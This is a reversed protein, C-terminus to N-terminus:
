AASEKKAPNKAPTVTKKALTARDTIIVADVPCVQRCADCATCLENDITHVQYPTNPIANVPCDQACKTCGICDDTIDYAILAQCKGAPCRGELHAEYEDRFYELTTLIPNPATKGLGCLSQAKVSHALHELKQLDDKKARGQCLRDLIELMRKTGVRCPTCKGCSERQTFALFYRAVDVMCDTDDLVVLGGSGMMAGIGGLAEYDVSTDWLREPICGGSPGGIQVAKPKHGGAVGGGIGEVIDRISLGMPVEILGGRELKGTLAFVKTGRSKETGHQAIENAGHRLTYPVLSFTEVNNVLTPKGWLGAQAPFPPRLSPLGRRGEISAILATEEGCVFAGAGQVIDLKLSFDSGMIHDGLYGEKECIAIAERLRQVALPYEARIYLFGQNSGCAYAAICMGELVRFPYSEMIMRDMFAGPDGEDGNAIIYKSSGEANRMFTWKQATTFGGGGRGRLGAARVEDVVAQPSLETLAKKLGEFGGRKLFDELDLPSIAGCHETGLNKQPALFAQVPAEMTTLFRSRVRDISEGLVLKDVFRNAADRIRIWTGKPEFHHRVIALVDDPEVKQYLFSEGGTPIVEVLPVRHCMGVCGVHRVKVRAGLQALSAQLAQEVKSSGSAICCSGMGIRIEGDADDNNPYVEQEKSGGAAKQKLFDDIVHNIHLADPEIRGYTIDDVQVVPALTCCGLCAVKQVTFQGDPSTDDGEAVDLKQILGDHVRDAGKVHCATGVCVCVEHEGMPKHRFQPFFTSVGAISQASIDTTEAIRKLAAEPLFRYRHQIAQLIALLHRQERGIGAIIADVDRVDVDLNDDDQSM